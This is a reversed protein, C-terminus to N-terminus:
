GLHRDEAYIRLELRAALRRSAGNEWSCSFLPVLGLRRVEAAWVGVALM